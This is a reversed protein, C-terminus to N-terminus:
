EIFSLQSSSEKLRSGGNGNVVVVVGSAAIEKM